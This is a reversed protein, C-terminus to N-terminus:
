MSSSCHMSYMSASCMLCLGNGENKFCSDVCRLCLMSVSVESIACCRRYAVWFDFCNVLHWCDKDRRSANMVESVCSVFLSSTSSIMHSECGMHSERIRCYVVSERIRCYVVDVMM